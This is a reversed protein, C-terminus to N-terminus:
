GTLPLIRRIRTSPASPSVGVNPPFTAPWPPPSRATAPDARQPRPPATAARTTDCTRTRGPEAQLYCTSYLDRPFIRAIQPGRVKTRGHPPNIRPRLMKIGRYAGLIFHDSRKQFHQGRNTVDTISCNPSSSKDAQLMFTSTKSKNQTSKMSKHGIPTEKHKWGSLTVHQFLANFQPTVRVWANEILYAQRCRRDVCQKGPHSM